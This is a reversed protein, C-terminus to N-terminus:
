DCGLKDPQYSVGKLIVNKVGIDKLGSILSKIYEEGYEEKYEIGTIFSAETINPLVYDSGNIYKSMKKVFELDFGKYLKGHDAMAPDTIIPAGEKLLKKRVDILIDLQKANGIYGTYLCDFKEGYKEWHAIIDPMDDTLDRFTYGSWSGTHTSLVASPLIVCEVGLASIIPLAVTISCQGLCSIHQVTHVRKSISM